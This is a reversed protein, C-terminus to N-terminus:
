FIFDSSALHVPDDFSFSKPFNVLFYRKQTYFLNSLDYCLQM